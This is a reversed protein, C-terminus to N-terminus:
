AHRQEGPKLWEVVAEREAVGVRWRKRGTMDATRQVVYGEGRIAALTGRAGAMGGGLGALAAVMAAQWGFYVGAAIVAAGCLILGIM